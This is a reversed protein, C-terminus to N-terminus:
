RRGRRRERERVRRRRVEYTGGGGGGNRRVGEGGWDKGAGEFGFRGEGRRGEEGGFDFDGDRRSARDGNRDRVGLRGLEAQDEVDLDDTRQFRM